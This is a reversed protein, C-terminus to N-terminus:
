GIQNKREEPDFGAIVPNREEVSLEVHQPADLTNTDTMTAVVPVATFAAIATLKIFTM